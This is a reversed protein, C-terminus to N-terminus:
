LPQLSIARLMSQGWITGVPAVGSVALWHAMASGGHVLTVLALATVPRAISDVAVEVVAAAAHIASIVRDAKAPCFGAHSEIRREM